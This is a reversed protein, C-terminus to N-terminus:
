ETDSDENSEEPDRKVKSFSAVKVGDKLDMVKVGTTIRGLVSISSCPTRMVIGETTILLVDDDECVARAGVLEGSKETIKYCKVGSGDRHQTKFETMPTLKGMGNESIFLVHSGQNETMMSVVEDGDALVTEKFKSAPIQEGNLKVMVRRYGIKRLFDFLITGEAVELEEGNHLVKM